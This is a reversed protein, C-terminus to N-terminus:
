DALLAFADVYTVPTGEEWLKLMTDPSLGDPLAAVYAAFESWEEYGHGAKKFMRFLSWFHNRVLRSYHQAEGPERGNAFSDYEALIKDGIDPTYAVIVSELDCPYWNMLGLLFDRQLNRDMGQRYEDVRESDGESMLLLRHSFIWTAPPNWRELLDVVYSPCQATLAAVSHGTEQSVREIVRAHSVENYDGVVSETARELAIWFQRYSSAWGIANRLRAVEDKEDLAHPDRAPFFKCYNGKLFVEREVSPLANVMEIRSPAHSTFQHASLVAM